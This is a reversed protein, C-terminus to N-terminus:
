RHLRHIMEETKEEGEATFGREDEHGRRPAPAYFVVSCAIREGASGSCMADAAPVTRWGLPGCFGPGPGSARPKREARSSEETPALTSTARVPRPRTPKTTTWRIPLRFSSGPPGSLRSAM